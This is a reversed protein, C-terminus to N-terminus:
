FEATARKQGGRVERKVWLEMDDWKRYLQVFNAVRPAFKDNTAIACNHIMMVVEEKTHEKLVKSAFTRNKKVDSKIRYGVVKEWYDFLGDINKTPIRVVVEPIDLVVNTTNNLDSNSDSDLDSDSDYLMGVTDSPISVTDGEIQLRETEKKVVLPIWDNPFDLYLYLKTPVKALSIEIGTKVQPSHYNQNKIVNKLIIWGEIYRVRPNLRRLMRSVEEKDIGTENAITRLSIEYVGAINTKNNLILYLYLYRDLPNLEDVVWPDDWFKTDVYRKKSM